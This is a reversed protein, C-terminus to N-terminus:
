QEFGESYPKPNCFPTFLVQSAAMDAAQDAGEKAQGRAQEVGEKAQKSGQQV